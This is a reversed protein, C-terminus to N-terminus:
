EAQPPLVGEAVLTADEGPTLPIPLPPAGQRIVEMNYKRLYADLMPGELNPVQLSRRKREEMRLQRGPSLSKMKAAGVGRRRSLGVAGGLPSVVVSGGGVGMRLLRQDGGKSVTATEDEYNADIVDIGDESDGVFLFYTKKSKSDVFGVRISDGVATIACLQLTDAYSPGASPPPQTSRSDAESPAEGFPRRELIINYRSFDQIVAAQVASATALLIVVAIHLLVRL